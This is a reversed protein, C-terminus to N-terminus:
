RAKLSVQVVHESAVPIGDRRAPEYLWDRAAALLLRDYAPHIPEVITASVVKGDAGLQLRVSGKFDTFRAMGAPPVWQPLTQRIAVAPTTVSVPALTPEVPPRAPPLDPVPPTAKARTLELFGTALIKLDSSTADGALEPSELLHILRELGQVAGDIDKRDMASRAEVYMRKAIGPLLERRAEQFLELVRPSTDAPDPTYDPHEGVAAAVAQRADDPRGLAVLCAARYRAVEATVATEPLSGLAGLAEEYAAQAYLDKAQQFTRQQAFGTAGGAVLLTLATAVTFRTAM